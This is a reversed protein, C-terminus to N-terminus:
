VDITVERDAEVIVAESEQMVRFWVIKRKSFKGIMKDLM